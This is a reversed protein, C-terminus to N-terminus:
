KGVKVVGASVLAQVYEEVADLPVPGYAGSLLEVIEELSRHGDVFNLAEYSYLSGNDLKLLKLGKTKEYGFHDELYNYGFVGMPGPVAANRAYVIGKRSAIKSNNEILGPLQNLFSTAIKRDQEPIEVYQKLSDITREEYWIHFRSLANANQSKMKKKLTDATRRLSSAKLVPWLKTLDQQNFNALYFATTAGLFGARKLKTPDINSPMDFNTHIYRDPWDNFYIAPIGFSAEAYVDHDSGMSYAALIAQLPEKGGEVAYLPYLARGTEAFEQTQQNVYEGIHDAVDYIFSPRSAPGRTIHFQAKTVPGGGVMDMHIASVIRKKIEPRAVLFAMTGEIEPPWVFRLTRAPRAIKKESILKSYARAVELITACGSANDNAGPRPHDLHCSFAIEQKRLQPDAGPIIATLVQYAGPHQRAVVKAQLQIKEGGFLRKQFARAQKLTIMFAFTPKKNFTGVHGWRLLNEDEAWWATKQNQAYSIIGAAGYKDIALRVAQEPQQSVLVLKGNVDKKAYDSESIGEGVDVLLATVEGSESDQALSLPVADWSAIRAGPVTGKMEWLEAFDADWPPRSKQTGYFKKGDAPFEEISVQELGYKRLESAIFEAATKYGRSGRMRHQRSLFELNRKATEGSLEESFAKMVSDDILDNAFLPASLLASLLLCILLQM